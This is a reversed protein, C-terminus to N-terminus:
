KSEGAATDDKAEAGVKVKTGDDLGYAGTTIVTDQATVGQLIQVDEGDNIGLAVPKRHAVGDSGVVMVSKGGDQATLIASLPMKLASQVTKGTISARVPTGVKYRGDRNDLRLWVEVTTSGPDLAPSILSIKGTVPQTVGPVNIEAEDGVNLAQAVSQSLHIKALLSSTDMVTLLVSGLTATEGPFLPRDTVVGSIPSRIESYSVQAEAGLYKGKTSKLQGEAQQLAAERSVKQMSDFHKKAADSAATAQVLAARATDLDRGPIAGEKFLQERATVISQNLDLQAKTQQVDLEAKQYDEPVQAKTQAAFTAEASEYQGKNDLAAAALDRNELEALLEGAKVRSGRQVYFKRVPATIKPSIAAQALPSLTADAIIRESITGVQPKEAQVTVLATTTEDDAKHCAV